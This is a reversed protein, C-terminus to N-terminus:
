LGCGESSYLHPPYAYVAPLREKESFERLISEITELETYAIRVISYGNDIAFKSKERDIQRQEDLNCAGRTRATYFKSTDDFHQIGDCEILTNWEPVFFDYRYQPLDKFIKQAVFAVNLRTLVRDTELELKSLCCKPCNVKLGCTRNCILAEWEHTPNKSCKWWVKAHAAPTYATPPMANKTPHWEKVLDPFVIALNRENTAMRGSCYPCGHGKVRNNMSSEWEHGATCQWWVSCGSGFTYADPGKANRTPHWESAIEPYRSLFSNDTCTKKGTCYPCGTDRKTRNGVKAEYDHTENKPCIWWVMKDSVPTLKDPTISNKTPHFEAAIHPFKDKLTNGNATTKGNCGPCGSNKKCRVNASVQWEHNAACMWWYAKNSGAIVSTVPVTNKTPHWQKAVEPHTALICNTEDVKRGCCYPCKSGGYRNGIVAEYSHMMQCTWWVKKNSHPGYSNLERPNKQTDYESALLEWREADVTTDQQKGRNRTKKETTESM